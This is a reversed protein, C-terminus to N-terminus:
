GVLPVGWDALEEESRVTFFWDRYTRHGAVHEARRLGDGRVLFFSYGHAALLEEVQSADGVEYLVECLIDPHFVRLFEQGHQLVADETGEVDVKVAVRVGEPMSDLLSDLSRFRVRVGSEFHLRSSYFSPLASDNSRAPVTMESGPVGIGAPYLVTRHLVDNRVCNDFLAQFVDPVIEFAHAELDPNVTTGVLTFLGTYAGIDVMVSARSAASAFLEVAFADSPKPRRGKGWYLEKAIVCDRPRLMIFTRGGARGKVEHLRSPAPLRGSEGLRPFLRVTQRLMAHPLSLGFFRKVWKKLGYWSRRRGVSSSRYDDQM